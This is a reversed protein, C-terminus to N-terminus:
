VFKQVALFTNASTGFVASKYLEWTYTTENLIYMAGYDNIAIFKKLGGHYTFRNLSVHDAAVILSVSGDLLIRTSNANCFVVKGNGYAARIPVVGSV